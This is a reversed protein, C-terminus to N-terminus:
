SGALGYFPMINESNISYMPTAANGIKQTIYPQFAIKRSVNLDFQIELNELGPLTPLSIFGLICLM